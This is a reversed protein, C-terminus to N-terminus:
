VGKKRSVYRSLPHQLHLASPGFAYKGYKSGGVICCIRYGRLLYPVFISTTVIGIDFLGLEEHFYRNPM